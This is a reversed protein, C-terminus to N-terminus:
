KIAPRPVDGWPVYAPDSPWWIDHTWNKSLPGFARSQGTKFDLVQMPPLHAAAFNGIRVDAGGQLIALSGSTAALDYITESQARILGNTLRIEYNDTGKKVNGVIRGYYLVGVFNVRENTTSITTSHDIEFLSGSKILILNSPRVLPNFPLGESIHHSDPRVTEGLSIYLQSGVATEIMVGSQLSQGVKTNEWTKGRDMSFRSKGSARMVMARLPREAVSASKCGVCFIVFLGM